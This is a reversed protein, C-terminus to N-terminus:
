ALLMVTWSVNTKGVSEVFGQVAGFAQNLLGPFGSAM